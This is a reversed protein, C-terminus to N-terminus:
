VVVWGKTIISLRWQTMVPQSVAPLLKPCDPLNKHKKADKANNNKAKGKIQAFLNLM